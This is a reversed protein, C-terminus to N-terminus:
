FAHQLLPFKMFAWQVILFMEAMIQNCISRYVSDRVAPCFECTRATVLVPSGERNGVMSSVRIKYASSERLNRITFNTSAAPVVQSTEAGGLASILWAIILFTTILIITWFWFHNHPKEGLFPIWSLKYGSAGPTKKWSLTFSTIGVDVIKVQRVTQIPGSGSVAAPSDSSTVVFVCPTSKNVSGIM